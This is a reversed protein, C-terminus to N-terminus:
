CNVNFCDWDTNMAAHNNKSAVAATAYLGSDGNRKAINNKVMKPTYSSYPEIYFGSGANRNSENNRIVQGLGEYMYFGDSGNHKATNGVFETNYSYDDYWGTSGNYSTTNNAFYSGPQGVASYDYCYETYIGYNSNYNATNGVFVIWGYDDCDIYFGDYGGNAINAVYTTYASYDDYIGYTDGSDGISENYAITDRLEYYTYIGTGAHSVVNWSIENHAGDELYIGDQGGANVRSKTVISNSVYTYYIGISSPDVAENTVRVGRVAVHNTYYAYVGYQFNRISGHRVTVGTYGGNYVGSFSDDGTWGWITYGGLNLTVNDAAIDLGDGAYASCDLDSTLTTNTTILDGCALPGGAAVPGPILGLMAVAVSLTLALKRPIRM